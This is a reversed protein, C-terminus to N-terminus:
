WSVNCPMATSDVKLQYQSTSPNYGSWKLDNKGPRFLYKYREMGLAIQGHAGILRTLASTESRPVGSIFLYNKNM